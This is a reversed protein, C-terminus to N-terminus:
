EGDVKRVFQFRKWLPLDAWYVGQENYSDDPKLLYDFIQKENTTMGFDPAAMSPHRATMDPGHPAALGYDRIEGQYNTM